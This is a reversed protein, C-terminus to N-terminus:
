VWGERRIQAEYSGTKCHVSISPLINKKNQESDDTDLFAGQM